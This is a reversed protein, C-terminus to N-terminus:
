FSLLLDSFCGKNKPNKEKFVWRFFGKCMMETRNSTNKYHNKQISLFSFCNLNSDERIILFVLFDNVM